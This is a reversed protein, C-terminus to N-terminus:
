APSVTVSEGTGSRRFKARKARVLASGSRVEVLVDVKLPEYVDIFAGEGSASANLKSSNFDKTRTGKSSDYCGNPRRTQVRRSSRTPKHGNMAWYITITLPEHSAVEDRPCAAAVQLSADGPTVHGSRDVNRKRKTTSFRAGPREGATV